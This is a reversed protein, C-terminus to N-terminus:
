NYADQVVNIADSVQEGWGDTCYVTVVYTRKDRKTTPLVDFSLVYDALQLKTIADKHPCEVTFADSPMNSHLRVSVHGGEVPLSVEHKSLTATEHFVGEQKVELVDERGPASVRIRACRRYGTNESFRFALSDRRSLGVSLWSAGSTVAVDYDRDAILRVGDEGAAAAVKIDDPVIGLQIIDPNEPRLSECSLALAALAISLLIKKM